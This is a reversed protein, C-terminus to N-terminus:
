SFLNPYKKDVLVGLLSVSLVLVVVGLTDVNSWRPRVVLEDYGSQPDDERVFTADVCEGIVVEATTYIILEGFVHGGICNGEEDSLIIHLHGGEGGSLTGVLSVIEFHGEYTKTTSSDALRLTAKTLSGVCTVIFAAKLKSYKVWDLLCQRLDQGPRFRAAATATQSWVYSPTNGM